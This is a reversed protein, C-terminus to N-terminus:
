LEVKRALYDDARKTIENYLEKLINVDVQANGDYRWNLRLSGGSTIGAHLFRLVTFVADPNGWPIVCILWNMTACGEPCKERYFNYTGKLVVMNFHYDGARYKKLSV